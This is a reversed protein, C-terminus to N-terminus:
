WITFLDTGTQPGISNDQIITNITTIKSGKGQALLGSKLYGFRDMSVIAAKDYGSFYFSAAHAVPKKLGHEISHLSTEKAGM